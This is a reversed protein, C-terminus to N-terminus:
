DLANKKYIRVTEVPSQWEEHIKSIDGSKRAEAPISDTNVIFESMCGNETFLMSPDTDEWSKRNGIICKIVTGNKLILDVYDGARADFHLGIAVLYRDNKMLIGERGIMSNRTLKYAPASVDTIAEYDMFSKFGSYAPITYDSYPIPEELLKDSEIFGVKVENTENKYAVYSWSVGNECFLPNSAYVIDNMDVMYLINANENHDERIACDEKVYYNDYSIYIADELIEKKSTGVRIVSNQITKAYATMNGIDATLLMIGSRTNYSIATEGTAVKKPISIFLLIGFTLVFFAEILRKKM